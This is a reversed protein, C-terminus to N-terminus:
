IQILVFKEKEKKLLDKNLKYKIYVGMETILKGNKDSKKRRTKGLSKTLTNNNKSDFINIIPSKIITYKKNNNNNDSNDILFNNGDKLAGDSFIIQEDGMVWKEEEFVLSDNKDGNNKNKYKKKPYGPKDECDSNNKILEKKYIDQGGLIKAIYKNNNVKLKNKNKNQYSLLNDEFSNNFKQPENENM